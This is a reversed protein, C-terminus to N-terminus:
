GRNTHMSIYKDNKMHVTRASDKHHLKQWWFHGCAAWNKHGLSHDMYLLAPTLNINLHFSGILHYQAHKLKDM